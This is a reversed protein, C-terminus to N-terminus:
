TDLSRIWASTNPRGGCPANRWEGFWRVTKAASSSSYTSSPVIAIAFGSVPSTCRISVPSLTKKRRSVQCWANACPAPGNRTSSSKAGGGAM